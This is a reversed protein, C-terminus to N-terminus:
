SNVSIGKSKLITRANLIIALNWVVLGFILFEPIYKGLGLVGYVAFIFAFADRKLCYNSFNFIKLLRPNGEFRKRLIYALIDFDGGGPGFYLLLAMLSVGIVALTVIYVGLILYENGYTSWLAYSMAGMFLMNTIMDITTDIKTGKLSSQFKARAIEGDIGDVVSTIHFLLSGWLIGSEGGLMLVYTMLVAFLATVGSFYLPPLPYDAFFKSFITSVPRNLTKSIFGDSEKSLWKFLRSRAAQLTDEQIDLVLFPDCDFIEAAPYSIKASTTFDDKSLIIKGSAPSKMIRCNSTLFKDLLSPQLLFGDEIYVTDKPGTATAPPIEDIYNVPASNENAHEIYPPKKQEAPALIRITEIGSSICNKILRDRISIASIIYDGQPAARIIAISPKLLGTEKGKDKM